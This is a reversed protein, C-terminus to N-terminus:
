KCLGAGVWGYSEQGRATTPRLLLNTIDSRHFIRECAEVRGVKGYTKEEVEKLWGPGIGM